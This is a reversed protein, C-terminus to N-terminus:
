KRGATWNMGWGYAEDVKDQGGRIYRV